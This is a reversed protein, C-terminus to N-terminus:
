IKSIGWLIVTLIVFEISLLFANNLEVIGFVHLCENIFSMLAIACAVLALKHYKSSISNWAIICAHLEILRSVWFYINVTCETENVSKTFIARLIILAFFSLGIIEVSRLLTLLKEKM